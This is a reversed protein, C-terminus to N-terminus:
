GDPIALDRRIAELLVVEAADYREQGQSFKESEPSDYESYFGWAWAASYAENAAVTVAPTAYIRLHQLKRYTPLQWDPVLEPEESLGFGHNYTLFAM